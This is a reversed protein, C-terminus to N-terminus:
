RNSRIAAARQAALKESNAAETQEHYAASTIMLLQQLLENQKHRQYIELAQMYAMERAVAAPDASAMKAYWEKNAYRRSAEIENMEALSLDGSPVTYGAAKWQGKLVDSYGSPLAKPDLEIRRRDFVWRAMSARSADARLMQMYARGQPTKATEDDVAPERIPKIVNGVYADYAALQKADLTLQSKNSNNGAGNMVTAARVDANHYEDNNNYKEKHEKDRDALDAQPSTGKILNDTVESNRAGAKVAAVKAGGAVKSAGVASAASCPPGAFVKRAENAMITQRALDADFIQKAQLVGEQVEANSGMQAKMQGTLATVLRTVQTMASTISGTIASSASGVALSIESSASGIASVTASGTYNVAGTVCGDCVAAANPSYAGAGFALAVALASVSLAHKSQKVM